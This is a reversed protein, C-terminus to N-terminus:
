DSANGVPDLWSPLPEDVVTPVVDIVDLPRQQMMEVAMRKLDDISMKQLNEPSLENGDLHAIAGTVSIDQRSLKPIAYEALESVLKVAAAPDPRNVWVVSGEIDLIPKGNTDVKPIGNATQEIWQRLNGIEGDVLAQVGARINTNIASKRGVRGRPKVNVLM